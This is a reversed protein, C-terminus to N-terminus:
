VERVIRAFERGSINIKTDAREVASLIIAYLQDPTIPNAAEKIDRMLNDRGYIMEGGSHGGRDGVIAGGYLSPSTFLYPNDYAKAFSLTGIAATLNPFIAKAAGKIKEIFGKFNFQPYSVSGKLMKGVNIPFDGSIDKASKSVAKSAKGMEDAASTSLKKFDGASTSAASGVGKIAAAEQDSSGKVKNLEDQAAQARAAASNVMTQTIGAQGADYAAKITAYDAQTEAAQKQLETQTATTATKLNMQYSALAANIANINGTQVAEQLNSYNVITNAADANAKAYKDVDGQAEKLSAQETKVATEADRVAQALMSKRAVSSGSYSDYANQAATLQDQAAKLSNERETVTQLADALKQQSSTQLEIAEVYADYNADLYAQAQKKQIVKDIAGGLQGNKGILAEIESQEMGLAQALEGLIVQARAKDSEAIKGNADVLGNYEEKLARAHEFQATVANNNETAAQSAQKYAETSQNLADLSERQATTLEHQAIVAQKNREYASYTAIGLAGIAAVVALIPTALGGVGAGMAAFKTIVTGVGSVLSGIGSVLKGVVVTVPGIAAAIMGFKVIMDQQAPTLSKFAKGARELVGQLKGIMPTIRNLIAGGLDAGAVKAQNMAMKFKDVPDLTNEFTKDINGVNDKLSTGLQDLSLRGDRIASALAPGARKGFLELAAGYAESDTSANKMTDQLEALKDKLPKGEAASEAFAKKLGAMAQGTDVGNVSLQGLFNAADSASFGMDKLAAANTTMDSALQNVDAGTNQAVANLTDLFDGTDKSSLGFAAMASQVSNISTTVDTKNLQSFKVFKGAVDELEQGTLKFRTNVQGVADGATQFDTPIQTALNKVSDQMGQLAQGTVGTKEVVADMGKDVDNFSKIAAAGMAVIPVTLNQTIKQGAATIKQGVEQMKAGVAQMQVGVVSAVKAYENELLKLKNETDIIERQLRQFDESSEDVGNAKMEEMSQKLTALRQKTADISTRLMQQKQTILTTSAPNFKLLRDVDRLGSKMARIQTDVGRLASVLPTAKANLEITIGQVRSAM